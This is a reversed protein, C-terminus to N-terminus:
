LISDVVDDPDENANFDVLDELEEDGATLSLSDDQSTRFKRNAFFIAIALTIIFIVTCSAGTIIAALLLWLSSNEDLPNQCNKSDSVGMGHEYESQCLEEEDDSDACHKCYDLCMDPIEYVYNNVETNWNWLVFLNFCDQKFFHLTLYFAPLLVCNLIEEYMM